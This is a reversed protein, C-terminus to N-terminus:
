FFWFKRVSPKNTRIKEFNIYANLVRQVCLKKPWINQQINIIFCACAKKYSYSRYSYRLIIGPHTQYYFWKYKILNNDKPLFFCNGFVTCLKAFFDHSFMFIFINLKIGAFNCHPSYIKSLIADCISHRNLM